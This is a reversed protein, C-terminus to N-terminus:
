NYCLAVVQFRWQHWPLPTQHIKPKILFYADILYMLIRATDRLRVSHQINYKKITSSHYKWYSAMISLSGTTVGHASTIEISSVIRLNPDIVLPIVPCKLHPTQNRTIAHVLWYTRWPYVCLQTWNQVSLSSQMQIKKKIFQASISDLFYNVSSVVERGGPTVYCKPHPCLNLFLPNRYTQMLEHRGARKVPKVCYQM